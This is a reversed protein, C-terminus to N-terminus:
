RMGKCCETGEDIPRHSLSLILDVGLTEAIM